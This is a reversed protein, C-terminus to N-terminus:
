NQDDNNRSLSAFFKNLKHSNPSGVGDEDFEYKPLGLRAHPNKTRTRQEYFAVCEGRQALDDLQDQSTCFTVNRNCKPCYRVSPTATQQLDRWAAPCDYTMECNLFHADFLPIYVTETIFGTALDITQQRAM